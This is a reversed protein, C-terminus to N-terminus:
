KLKKYVEMFENAIDEWNHVFNFDEVKKKQNQYNEPNLLWLIKSAIDDKNKPDVFLAVEQIREYLGTEKTVIFPKGCRISDLIMNPSIDGLSVLIVAYSRCIKDLFGEHDTPKTDLVAGSFIIDSRSFVKQLVNLNKWKLKRTVAVFSKSEPNGSVIHSGYYNEVIFHNQKSLRYPEMFINKQWETSWIIASLNQLTWKMLTFVLKEKYSLRSIRTQYFDRLLVLDSTRETYSEWLMDGGTRFIVKKSFIKSAVLVVGASFADLAFVCDALSVAPIIYFFFVIHRLGWPIWKFKGFIRVSVNHGQGTWVDRLNKAYEAPGGIEPPYIGTIILIKM